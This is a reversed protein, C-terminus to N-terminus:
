DAKSNKSDHQEGKCVKQLRVMEGSKSVFKEKSM